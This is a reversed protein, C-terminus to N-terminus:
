SIKLLLPIKIVQGAIAPRAMSEQGPWIGTIPRSHSPLAFLLPYRQWTGCENVMEDTQALLEGDGEQEGGGSGVKIKGM